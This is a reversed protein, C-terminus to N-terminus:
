LVYTNTQINSQHGNSKLKLLLLSVFVLLKVFCSHRITNMVTLNHKTKVKFL